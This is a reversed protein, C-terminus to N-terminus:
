PQPLGPVAPAPIAEPAAVASQTAGETADTAEGLTISKETADPLADAAAQADKATIWGRRHALRRDHRLADMAERDM